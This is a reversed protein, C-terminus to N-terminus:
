NQGIGKLHRLMMTGGTTDIDIAILDFRFEAYRERLGSVFCRAAARLHKLKAPSVAERATGFTDSRRTKVEVFAMCAGDRVILDIENHGSRYNRRVITCGALQLYDAAICEGLRGVDRM